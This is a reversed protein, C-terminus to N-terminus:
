KKRYSMGKIIGDADRSFVIIMNEDIYRIDSFGTQGEKFMIELPTVTEHKDFNYVINGDKNPTLEQISESILTTDKLLEEIAPLEEDSTEQNASLEKLYKEAKDYNGKSPDLPLNFLANIGKYDTNRSIEGTDKNFNYAHTVDFKDMVAIYLGRDAFVEIDDCEMIRYMIGDKIFWSAGGNMTFINLDKPHQGKIFPSVLFSVKDYLPDHSDPMPTEDVKSIALVSYTRDPFIEEASHKFDSIEKGSVIGMLTIRYDGITQTKDISMAGEGDFAIALGKDGLNEAIEKPTLLKWAAFASVSTAVILISAVAAVSLRRKNTGKMSNKRRIKDIIQQNLSDEPEKSSSLAQYLLEDLKESDRM